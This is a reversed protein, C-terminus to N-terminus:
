FIRIKLVPFKDVIFSFNEDTYYHRVAFIKDINIVNRKM